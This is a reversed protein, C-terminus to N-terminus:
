GRSPFVGATAIVYQLGQIPPALKPLNFNVNRQGGFTTGLISYLAANQQIPLPQGQCAASGVPVPGAPWLGIEGVAQSDPAMGGGFQPYPGSLSMASHAGKVPASLTPLRFSKADGGFQGNLISGLAANQNLPLSRGDCAAWDTALAPGAFIRISGLPYDAGLRRDPMPFTGFISIIARVGPALDPVVPLQFLMEGDGGFTTGIVMFLGENEAVPLQRGDCHFWGNPEFSGGFYVIEGVVGQRMAVSGGAALGSFVDSLKAYKWRPPSPMYM